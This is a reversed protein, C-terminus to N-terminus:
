SYVDTGRCRGLDGSKGSILEPQHIEILFTNPSRADFGHEQIVNAANYASCLRRPEPVVAGWKGRFCQCKNAIGEYEQLTECIRCGSQLRRWLSWVEEVRVKWFKEVIDPLNIIGRVTTAGVLNWKANSKILYSFIYGSIFAPKWTILKFCSIEM